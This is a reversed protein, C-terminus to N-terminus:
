QLLEEFTESLSDFEFDYDADLLAKPEVRYSALLAEAFGGLVLHLGFAPVPFLTPRHLANGLAQTFDSNTVPAPSVLNLPGVISENELAFLIGGAVDRVHVWPWYQKGTGLRGGAGLSFATKMRTWADSKAGLVVGIRGFVLRVGLEQVPTAVREWEECLEALYGTGLPSSETLIQEGQDGYYGVASANLLVQPRAESPMKAITEVLQSTVGVRSQHFRQKNGENWRQAISEGALNVIADLGQLGDDLSRWEGERGAPSRSFGVWQHGRANLLERVAEGVLGSAGIVGVKV